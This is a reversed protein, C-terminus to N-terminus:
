AAARQARSTRRLIALSTAWLVLAAACGVFVQPWPGPLTMAILSAAITGAATAYYIPRAMGRALPLFHLGVILGIAPWILRTMGINLLLNAVVFVALGEVASWLGVLRGIRRSESEDRAPFGSRVRWTWALQAGSILAPATWSWLPAQLGWLAVGGWVFAFVNLVVLGSQM